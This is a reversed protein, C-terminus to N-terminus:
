AQWTWAVRCACSPRLGRQLSDQNGVLFHTLPDLFTSLEDCDEKFRTRTELESRARQSLLPRTGPRLGRQLSDQNGVSHSGFVRFASLPHRLGRQLSDQNGVSSSAARCRSTAATFPTAIRKSALGPKWCNSPSGMSKTRPNTPRLGRQLSDQNGVKGIRRGRVTTPVALPPRLGRQLSDQNGVYCFRAGVRCRVRPDCDEKFRTRTELVFSPSTSSTQNYTAIRKSALGPKWRNESAPTIAARRDCDEKFRTRTELLPVAGEEGSSAAAM